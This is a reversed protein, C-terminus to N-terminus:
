RRHVGREPRSIKIKGPGITNFTKGRDLKHCSYSLRVSGSVGGENINEAGKPEGVPSHQRNKQQKAERTGTGTSRVDNISAIKTKRGSKKKEL